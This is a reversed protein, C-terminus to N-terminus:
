GTINEMGFFIIKIPIWNNWVFNNGLNSFKANQLTVKLSKVSFMGTVDLEWRWQDIGYGKAAAFLENTLSQVENVEATSMLQRVWSFNIVVAGNLVKVRDTVAVNKVRELEFLGLFRSNLAEGGLWKDKWFSISDGVGPIARFCDSFVVGHKVMDKAVKFIQKWPGAITMKVPIPNWSRESNHIRWVVKRWLSGPDTKFRWWWKALMALNADNLSGVGVGGLEKPTMVNDWAVLTM